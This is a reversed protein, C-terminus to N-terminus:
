KLDRREGKDLADLEAMEQLYEDVTVGIEGDKEELYWVGDSGKVLPKYIGYEGQAQMLEGPTILVKQIEQKPFGSERQENNM